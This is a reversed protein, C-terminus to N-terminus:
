LGRCLCPLSAEVREWMRVDAHSLGKAAVEDDCDTSEDTKPNQAGHQRSRHEAWLAPGGPVKYLTGNVSLWTPLPFLVQLPPSARGRWLDCSERRSGRAICCAGGSRVSNHM